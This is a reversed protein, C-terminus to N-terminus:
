SCQAPRVLRHIVSEPFLIMKAGKAAAEDILRCIKATTAERDLLVPATQVVAARLTTTM